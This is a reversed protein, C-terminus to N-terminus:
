HYGYGGEPGEGPAVPAIIKITRSPWVEQARGALPWLTTVSVMSLGRTIVQRRNM